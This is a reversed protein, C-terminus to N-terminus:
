AEKDIEKKLNSGIVLGRLLLYFMTLLMLIFFGFFLLDFGSPIHPSFTEWHVSAFFLVGIGFLAIVGSLLFPVHTYIGKVSYKVERRASVSSDKTGINLEWKTKLSILESLWTGLHISFLSILLGFLTLIIGLLSLFLEPKM